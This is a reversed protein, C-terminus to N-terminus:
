GAHFFAEHNKFHRSPRAREDTQESRKGTKNPDESREAPRPIRNHNGTPDRLGEIGRYSSEGHSNWAENGMAIKKATDLHLGDGHLGDGGLKQGLEVLWGGM